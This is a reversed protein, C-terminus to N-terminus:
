RTAKRGAKARRRAAKRTKPSSQSKTFPSRHRPQQADWAAEKSTTWSCATVEPAKYTFHEPLPGAVKVEITSHGRKALYERIGQADEENGVMLRLKEPAEFHVISELAKDVQDFLQRMSDLRLQELATLEAPSPYYTGEFSHSLAVPGCETNRLPPIDNSCTTHRHVAAALGLSGAGVVAIKNQM